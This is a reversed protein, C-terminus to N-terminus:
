TGKFSFFEKNQKDLESSMEELMIKNNRHERCPQDTRGLM